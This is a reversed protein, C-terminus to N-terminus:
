CKARFHEWGALLTAALLLIPVLIVVALYLALYCLGLFAGWRWSVELSGATGSLFSTYERLGAVHAIVFLVVLLAARVVFDKPSCFQARCLDVCRRFLSRKM